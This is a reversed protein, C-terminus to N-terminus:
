LEADDIVVPRGGRKSREDPLRTGSLVQVKRPIVKDIKGMLM